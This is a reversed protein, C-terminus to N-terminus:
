LRCVSSRALSRSWLGIIIDTKSSHSRSGQQLKFIVLWAITIARYLYLSVVALLLTTHVIYALTLGATLNCARSHVCRYYRRISNTYLLLFNSTRKDLEYAHMDTWRQMFPVPIWYRGGIHTTYGTSDPGHRLQYIIIRSWKGLCCIDDVLAM